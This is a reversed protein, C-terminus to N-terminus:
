ILNKYIYEIYKWFKHIITIEEIWGQSLTQCGVSNLVWLTQRQALRRPWNVESWPASTCTSIWCSEMWFTRWLTRCCGGIMTCCGAAICLLFHQSPVFFHVIIHLLFTLDPRSIDRVLKKSTSQELINKTKHLTFNAWVDTWQPDWKYM